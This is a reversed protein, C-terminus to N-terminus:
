VFGATDTITKLMTNTVNEDDLDNPAERIRCAGGKPLIIRSTGSIQICERKIGIVWFVYILWFNEQHIM